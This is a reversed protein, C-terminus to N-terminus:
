VPCGFIHMHNLKPRVQVQSFDEIPTTGTLMKTSNKHVDNATRLAYPWLATNIAEPWNQQAHILMTWAADQLDRIRKEAVGNQHHANVGALSQGQCHTRLDDMWEKNIFLGNDSHYHQITVGHSTAYQEFARKARLTENSKTSQQLYVYSLGNYNDIFITAANYRKTMLFRKMQAILGLMPSELQDVSICSRPQTISFLGTQQCTSKHAM